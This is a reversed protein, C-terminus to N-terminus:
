AQSDNERLDGEILELLRRSIDRKGARPLRIPPVDPRFVTVENDDSEFGIDSRSVDNAVIMHAGKERLKRSAESEVASTEAAFGVRYASAASDRLSSLIDQTAELHLEPLGGDKKIKEEGPAVPRFDAVAAAMIVVDADAAAETVARAMEAATSVDLRKVGAPTSLQVPGSILSVTAGLRSAVEALSFGMRGSSRNSLYRVPDLPERTPGAAIVVHRGQWFRSSRPADLVAEVIAPPEAMRGNGQDGSALRGIVPGIRTVGREELQRIHARVTTNAWMNDHMAPAIFVPGTFGLATTTLFDDALGLALRAITHATAPAIVLADAWDAAEIHLEAGTGNASLYDEQYVAHGSLVELTLPTVFSAGARTLICRVEAGAEQFARVLSAAKFAAIGGSVGVLIRQQSSM